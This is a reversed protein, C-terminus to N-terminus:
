KQFMIIRKNIKAITLLLFCYVYNLELPEIRVELDRAGKNRSSQLAKWCLLSTKTSSRLSSDKVITQTAGKTQGFTYDGSFLCLMRLGVNVVNKFFLVLIIKISFM